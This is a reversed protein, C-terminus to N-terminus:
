NCITVQPRPFSPEPIPPEPRSAELVEAGISNLSPSAELAEAELIIRPVRLSAQPERLRLLGLLSFCNYLLFSLEVEM